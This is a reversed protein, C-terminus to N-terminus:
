GQSSFPLDVGHENVDETGRYRFIIVKKDKRTNPAHAVTHIYRSVLSDQIGSVITGVQVISM